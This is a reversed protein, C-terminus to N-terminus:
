REPSRMSRTRWRWREATVAAPDGDGINRTAEELRAALEQMPVAKVNGCADPFPAVFALSRM